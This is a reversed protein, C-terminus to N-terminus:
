KKGTKREYGPNKEKFKEANDVCAGIYGMRYAAQTPTLKEAVGNGDVTHCNILQTVFKKAQKGPLVRKGSRLVTGRTKGAM